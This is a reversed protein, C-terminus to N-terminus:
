SELRQQDRIWSRAQRGIYRQFTLHLLQLPDDRKGTLSGGEREKSKTQGFPQLSLTKQRWNCLPNM